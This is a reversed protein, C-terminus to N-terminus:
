RGHKKRAVLLFYGPKIRAITVQIEFLDIKCIGTKYWFEQMSGHKQIIRHTLDRLQKSHDEWVIVEFHNSELLEYIEDKSIAGKFCGIRDSHEIEYHDQANHSFLDSIILYGHPQLVRFVEKLVQDKDTILSFGCEMLALEIRDNIFPLYLSETQLVSLQKSRKLGDRLMKISADVGFVRGYGHKGLWEVTAGTGCAIDIVWANLSLQCYDLAHSTITIGGPRVTDGTVIRLADHEFLTSM